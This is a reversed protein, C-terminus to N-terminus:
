KSDILNTHGHKREMETLNINVLKCSSKKHVPLPASAVMQSKDVLKPDELIDDIDEVNRHQTKLREYDRDTYLKFKKNIVNKYEIILRLAEEITFAQGNAALSTYEVM